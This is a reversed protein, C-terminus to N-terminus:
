SGYRGNVNAMLNRKDLWAELIGMMLGATLIDVFNVVWRVGLNREGECNSPCLCTLSWLRPQSKFWFRHSFNQGDIHPNSSQGDCVAFFAFALLTLIYNRLSVNQVECIPFIVCWLTLIFYDIQMIFFGVGMRWACLCVCDIFSGRRFLCHMFLWMCLFFFLIQWIKNRIFGLCIFHISLGFLCYWVSLIKAM